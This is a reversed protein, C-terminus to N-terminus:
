HLPPGVIEIGHARATAVLAEVAEPAPEGEPEPPEPHEAPRSMARVFREFDGRTTITLWRAGGPSDVVYTHPAGKPALVIEGAHLRREGEETRFRITGELVHFVEDETRHLHLPASDGHPARHELVSIGDTGDRGSVRVTVLTDLFWLHEADPM